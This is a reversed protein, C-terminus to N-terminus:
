VQINLYIMLIKGLENKANQSNNNTNNKKSQDSNISSIFNLGNIEGFSKDKGKMGYFEFFKEDDQDFNEIENIKDKIQYNNEVLIVKELSYCEYFMREKYYINELEILLIELKKSNEDEIDELYFYEHLPFIKDKYIFICKTENITVFYKGFINIVNDYDYEEYLPDNGIIDPDSGSYCKDMDVKKVKDLFYVLKYKLFFSSKFYKAYEELNLINFYQLLYAFTLVKEDFNNSFDPILIIDMINNYNKYYKKTGDIQLIQPNYKYVERYNCNGSFILLKIEITETNKDNIYIRNQRYIKNKYIAMYRVKYKKVFYESFIDIKIINEDTKGIKYKVKYILM